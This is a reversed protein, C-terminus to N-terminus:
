MSLKGDESHSVLKRKLKKFKSTRHYHCIVDCLVVKAFGIFKATSCLIVRNVNLGDLFAKFDRHNAGHSMLFNVASVINTV